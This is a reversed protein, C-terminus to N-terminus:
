IEMFSQDPDSQALTRLTAMAELAMVEAEELSPAPECNKAKDAPCACDNTAASHCSAITRGMLLQVEARDRQLLKNDPDGRQLDESEAMAKRYDKLAALGTEAGAEYALAVVANRSASVSPPMLERARAARPGAQKATMGLSHRIAVDRNRQSDDVGQRESLARDAPQCDASRIRRNLASCRVPSLRLPRM